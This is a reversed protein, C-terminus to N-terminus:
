GKTTKPSTKAFDGANFIVKPFDRTFCVNRRECCIWRPDDKESCPIKPGQLEKDEYNSLAVM